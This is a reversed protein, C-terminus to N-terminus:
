RCVPIDSWRTTYYPSRAEQRMYWTRERRIRGLAITGTGFRTNLRDAIM